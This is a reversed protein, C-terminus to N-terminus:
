PPITSVGTSDTDTATTDSVPTSSASSEDTITMEVGSDPNGRHHQPIPVPESATHINNPAPVPNSNLTVAPIPGYTVPPIVTSQTTVVHVFPASQIFEDRINELIQGLLGQSIWNSTDLCLPDGLSRGSGWLRDAASEAIRKSGTRCILTDLVHPNQQFKARIGPHCIDGAVEDWRSEVVNRIQRSLEKCEWSTACGLIQDQTDLDGFYKAKASQIFQESSIYRIGEYSFPAPFFNSLPNIEGFFVVVSDNQKSSVDFM